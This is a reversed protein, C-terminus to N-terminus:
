KLHNNLLNNERPDPIDLGKQAFHEQVLTKAENFDKTSMTRLSKGEVVFVEQGFIVKSTLKLGLIKTLIYPHVDDKSLLEGQTEKHFSIILPIVLGFWYRKQSLTANVTLETINIALKKKRFKMLTRNIFPLDDLILRDEDDLEGSINIENLAM